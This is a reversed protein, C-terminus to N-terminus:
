KKNRNLYKARDKLHENYTENFVHENEEPRLVYYLYNHEEPYLAAEISEKGPSAIPGPPL